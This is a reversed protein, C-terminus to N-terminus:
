IRRAREAAAPPREPHAFDGRDKNEESPPLPTEPAAWGAVVIGYLIHDAAVVARWLAPRERAHRVGLLPAIGLEFALWISLGYVPGAARHTRVRRPLLGFVAGGAAGYLWHVVETVAERRRRPMRRVREPAHKEVIAEPPSKDHGGVAATVTRVGTMAMAAVLGRAAARVLTQRKEEMQM